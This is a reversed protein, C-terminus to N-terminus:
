LPVSKPDPSGPLIANQLCQMAAEPYNLKYYCWAMSNWSRSSLPKRYVFSGFLKSRTLGVEENFTIVRKFLHIAAAYNGTKTYCMALPYMIELNNSDLKYAQQWYSTALGYLKIRYCDMGRKGLVYAYRYRLAGVAYPNTIHERYIAYAKTYKQTTAYTDGVYAWYEQQNELGLLGYIRGREFHYVIDDNFRQDWKVMQDYQQLAHAYEGRATASRATNWYYFAICTRGFLGILIIIAAAFIMGRKQVMWNKAAPGNWVWASILLLLGGIISCYFGSKAFSAATEIADILTYDNQMVTNLRLERSELWPIQINTETMSVDKLLQRVQDMQHVSDRIASSDLVTIVLLILVPLLTATIGIGLFLGTRRGPLVLAALAGVALGFSLLRCAHVYFPEPTNIVHWWTFAGGFLLFIAGLLCLIAVEPSDKLSASWESRDPLASITQKQSIPPYARDLIAM